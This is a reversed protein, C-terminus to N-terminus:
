VGNNAAPSHGPRPLKLVVAARCGVSWDNSAFTAGPRRPSTGTRNKDAVTPYPRVCGRDRVGAESAESASGRSRAGLSIGFSRANRPEAPARCSGASHRVKAELDAAACAVHEIRLLHPMFPRWCRRSADCSHRRFPPRFPWGDTRGPRAAGSGIGPLFIGCILYEVNRPARVLGHRRLASACHPRIRTRPQVDHTGDAGPPEQIQWM